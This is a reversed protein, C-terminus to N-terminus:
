VRGESDTIELIFLSHPEDKKEFNKLIEDLNWYHLFFKLFVLCTKRLRLSGFYM